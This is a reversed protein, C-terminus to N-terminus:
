YWTQIEACGAAQSSNLELRRDTVLMVDVGKNWGYSM